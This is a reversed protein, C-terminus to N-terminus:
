SESRIQNFHLKGKEDEKRKGANTTSNDDSGANANLAPDSKSTLTLGEDVNSCLQWILDENYLISSVFHDGLVRCFLVYSHHALAPTFSNNLYKYQNIDESEKDSLHLTEMENANVPEERKESYSM